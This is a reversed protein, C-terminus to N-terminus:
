PTVEKVFYENGGFTALMVRDRGYSFHAGTVIPRLNMMNWSAWRAAYKVAENRASETRFETAAYPDSTMQYKDMLDIETM